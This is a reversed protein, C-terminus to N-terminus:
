CTNRGALIYRGQALVENLINSELAFVLYVVESYLAKSIPAFKIEDLILLQCLANYLRGSSNSCRSLHLKQRLAALIATSCSLCHAFSWAPVVCRSELCFHSQGCDLPLLRQGFQGLLKIDMWILDNLPLYLQEFPSGPYEPSLSAGIGGRWGHIQFGKM